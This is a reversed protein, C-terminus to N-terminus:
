NEPLKYFTRENQQWFLPHMSLRRKITISLYTHMYGIKYGLYKLITHLLQVPILSTHKNKILYKWENLVYAVGQYEASQFTRLLGKQQRHFAGIDFYRKFEEKFSYNHSHFVQAEACYALSFGSQILRAAVVVDEGLITDIPFGGISMLLSKKYAAFSNSCHCTRIGLRPIDAKSKIISEAPYNSLRAYMSIVDANAYAVQRGYAMGIDDNQNLCDVLTALVQSDIPCADQTIMIINEFSSMEVGMNRTGGHNFLAKEISHYKLGFNKLISLTDDTSGSDIIILEHKITQCSLAELLSRLYPAANYTPIIVSVM